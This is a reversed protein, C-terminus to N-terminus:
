NTYVNDFSVDLDAPVSSGMCNPPFVNAGLNKFPAVPPTTDSISYPMYQVAKTRYQPRNLEVVFRHNPQDWQLAVIVTEGINVPGLYVNDFFQGQYQLFGGVDVTGAPSASYHDLQLFAIVDDAATGGGGNFFSGNVLVQSHAVGANTACDTPNSNRVTVNAAITNVLDATLSVVSNSYQTGSNSNNAGYSRIRLRLQGNEIERVCELAPPGCQWIATWKSPDIFGQNFNDYLRLVSPKKSQAKAMPNLMTCVSLVALFGVRM